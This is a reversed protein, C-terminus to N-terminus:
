HLVGLKIESYEVKNRALNSSCFDLNGLKIQSQNAKLCPFNEDKIKLSIVLFLENEWQFTQVRKALLM